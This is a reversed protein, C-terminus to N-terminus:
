ERRYTISCVCLLPLLRFVLATLSFSRVFYNATHLFTYFSAHHREMSTAEGASPVTASPVSSTVSSSEGLVSASPESAGSSVNGGGSGGKELTAPAARFAHPYLVSLSGRRLVRRVFLASTPTHKIEVLEVGAEVAL